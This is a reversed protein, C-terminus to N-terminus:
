STSIQFPYDGITDHQKIIYTSLYPEESGPPTFAIVECQAIYKWGASSKGHYTYGVTYNEKIILDLLRERSIVDENDLGSVTVNIIRKNEADYNIDKIQFRKM